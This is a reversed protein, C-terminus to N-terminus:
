ASTRISSAQEMASMEDVLAARVAPIDAGQPIDLAQGAQLTFTQGSGKALIEVTGERVAFTTVPSASQGSDVRGWFQTGRVAAVATPTEVQFTSGSPLKDLNLIANGSELRLHTAAAEASEIRFSSEPLLRCGAQDNLTVDVTCGPGSRLVDGTQCPAGVSAPIPESGREIVAEGQLRSIFAKEAARAAPLVLTLSLALGVATKTLTGFM